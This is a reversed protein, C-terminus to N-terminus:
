PCQVTGNLHREVLDMAASYLTRPLMQQSLLLPYWGRERIEPHKDLVPITFEEAIIYLWYHANIVKGGIITYEETIYQDSVMIAEPLQVEVEEKFERKAATLCDEKHVGSVLARGKPWSWALAATSVRDEISALLKPLVDLVESFRMQAYSLGDPPQCLIKQYLDSFYDLNELAARIHGIEGPMFKGMLLPLHSLRYYGKIFVLFEATHKRQVLVWSNTNM